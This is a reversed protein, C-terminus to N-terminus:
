KKFDCFSFNLLFLKNKSIIYAHVNKPVPFVFPSTCSQFLSVSSNKSPFFHAGLWDNYHVCSPAPHVSLLCFHFTTLLSMKGAPNSQLHEAVFPICQQRTKTSFLAIPSSLYDRSVVLDCWVSLNLYFGPFSGMIHSFQCKTKRSFIYIRLFIQSVWHHAKEYTLPNVPPQPSGEKTHSGACSFILAHNYFQCKKGLTIQLRKSPPEDLPCHNLLNMM